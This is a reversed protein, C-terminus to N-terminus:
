LLVRKFPRLMSLFIPNINVGREGTAERDRYMSGVIMCIANRIAHPVYGYEDLLDGEDMNLYKTVSESAAIIYSELLDDEDCGDIRLHRKVYQIDVMM